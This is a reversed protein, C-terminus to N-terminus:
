KKIIADTEFFLGSPIFEDNLDNLDIGAKMYKHHDDEFLMHCHLTLNEKKCVIYQIAGGVSECDDDNIVSNLIDLLPTYSNNQYAQYVREEVGGHQQLHRLGSGSIEYNMEDFLKSKYFDFIGFENLKFEFKFAQMENDVPCYSIMYFICGFKEDMLSSFMAKSTNKYISFAVDIIESFSVDSYNKILVIKNLIESLSEKVIYSNTFGGCFLTAIERKDVLAKNENTEDGPEHLLCTLKSIKVCYDLKKEEFSLRSDTAAYINGLEGKWIVCMTM